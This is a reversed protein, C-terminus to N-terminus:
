GEVQEELAPLLDFLDGVVGYDAYDFIPAEEDTNIAVILESDTMGEVHEPAGSIGAALYLDPSVSKGSKGVQRNKPLWGNDTIPRSSSLAADLAEAASEALPINDEEDIGRGISLLRDARTIDVDGAEPENLQEFTVGDPGVAVALEEREPTGETRGAEADFAGAAVALMAAGSEVASEVNMKGGYLQSTAVVDGNDVSIDAVYSVLPTGTADAAAPAVDMGISTVSTLTLRPSEEALVAEVADAYAMPNFQALADDEVALVRDATGLDDTFTEVDEGLVVAVLEEGLDDALTRGADLMEYSIDDLADEGQHETIAYIGSM